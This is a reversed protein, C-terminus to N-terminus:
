LSSVDFAVELDYIASVVTDQWLILNTTGAAKATVYIEQPSLLVFTAVKPDAISVRKVPESAKLIISKGVILHLKQPKQTEHPAYEGAWSGACFILLLVALILPAIGARSYGRSLHIAM